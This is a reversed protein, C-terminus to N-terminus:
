SSWLISTTAPALVPAVDNTNNLCSFAICSRKQGQGRYQPIGTYIVFILGKKIEKYSTPAPALVPAADNTSNLFAFIFLSQNQSRSQGEARLGSFPFDFMSINTHVTFVTSYM